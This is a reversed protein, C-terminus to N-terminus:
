QEMGDPVLPPEDIKESLGDQDELGKMIVDQIGDQIKSKHILM